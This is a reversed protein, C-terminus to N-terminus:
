RRSSERLSVPVRRRRRRSSDLMRKHLAFPAQLIKKLKPVRGMATLQQFMKQVDDGITADCTFLGYDTYLRATKPHYNGTGLHVYRKLSRGERRVVLIMKAHTKHGVVGYVVHAGAEQLM